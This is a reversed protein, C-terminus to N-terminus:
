EIQVIKMKPSVCSPDIIAIAFSEDDIMDFWYIDKWLLRLIKSLLRRLLQNYFKM